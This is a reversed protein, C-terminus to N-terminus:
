KKNLDKVFIARKEPAGLPRVTEILIMFKFFDCYKEGHITFKYFHLISNM